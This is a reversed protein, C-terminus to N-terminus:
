GLCNLVATWLYISITILDSLTTFTARHQAAKTAQLTTVTLFKSLALYLLPLPQM